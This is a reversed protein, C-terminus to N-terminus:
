QKNVKSNTDEILTLDEELKKNKAECSVKELHLKQRASEEEELSPV